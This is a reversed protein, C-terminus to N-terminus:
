LKWLNQEKSNYMKHIETDAGCVFDFIKKVEENKHVQTTEDWSPRGIAGGGVGGRVRLAAAKGANFQQWPDTPLPNRTYPPPPTGGGSNRRFIGKSGIGASTPDSSSMGTSSDIIGNGSRRCRSPLPGVDHDADSGSNDSLTGVNSPVLDDSDSGSSFSHRNSRQSHTRAGYRLPPTRSRSRSASIPSLRPKFSDGRGNRPRGHQSSQRGHSSHHSSSSANRRRRPGNEDSDDKHHSYRSARAHYDNASSRGGEGAQPQRSRSNPRKHHSSRSQSQDHRHPGFSRAHSRHSHSSYRYDSDNDSNTVSKDSEDSLHEFSESSRAGGRLRISRSKADLFDDTSRATSVKTDRIRRSSRSSLPDASAHKAKQPSAESSDPQPSTADDQYASLNLAHRRMDRPNLKSTQDKGNRTRNCTSQKRPDSELTPVLFTM